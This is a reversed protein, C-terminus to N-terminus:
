LEPIQGIRAVMETIIQLDLLFQEKRKFENANHGTYKEDPMGLGFQVGNPLYHVSTAGSSSLFDRPMSLNETAVDLLANVWVGKPNRYMPKNFKTELSFAVNSKTKWEGLKSGLDKDIDEVSRGVPIRLNVVLQFGNVDMGVYTVASTLPGMFDHKFDIGLVKGHYDLGWNDSVYTAADTIHNSKFVSHKQAFEIFTFLRSVPNVGSAPESSHASVGKVTLKLGGAMAATEISFNDGKAAVFEDALAKLKVTLKEPSATVIDVSSASPIQNKAMGGVVSVLEAEAGSESTGARLPFTTTITSSGKEAIVVPYGGDIALNYKPKPNKTFYYPMAEGTTEETTDVLLRFDRLLSIGEEKIVKMAYLSVVIGNKDDETGRGYMREGIHTVKFPDLRTGDELVWLAPNVPVVDAHAHIGVIEDSAGDLSIEYVRHDVNRFALNFEGAVKGLFRSFKHFEPNEHQPLGKVQFTPIEVMRTLLEIAEEGYKLRTYIGLLRQIAHLEYDKLKDENRFRKVATAIKNHSDLLNGGSLEALFQDFRASSKLATAAIIKGSLEPSLKEASLSPKEGSALGKQPVTLCLVSALCALAVSNVVAKM